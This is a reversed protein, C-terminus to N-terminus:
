GNVLKRPCGLQISIVFNLMGLIFTQFNCRREFIAKQPYRNPGPLASCFGTFLSPENLPEKTFYGTIILKGSSKWPKPLGLSDIYFFNLLTTVLQMGGKWDGM